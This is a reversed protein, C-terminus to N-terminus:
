KKNAEKNPKIDLLEVEFLLTSFPPITSGAGMAGYGLKSPILLQAKEGKRLLAIGEDWGKIVSGMGLVFQFPENRNLSSDFVKGDLFKGTYHVVVTDYPKAQPNNPANKTIKYYLGSATKQMDLKNEKLYAELKAIEEDEKKKLNEQQKREAEQQEKQVQQKTKRGTVKVFYEFFVNKKGQLQQAFQDFYPYRRVLTDLSIKIKVSDGVQLFPLVETPMGKETKVQLTFGNRFNTDIKARQYTNDVEITDVKSILHMQVFDGEKLKEGNPNRNIIQFIVGSPLKEEKNETKRPKECAFFILFSMLVSYFNLHKM